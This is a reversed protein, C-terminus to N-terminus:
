GRADPAAVVAGARARLVGRRELEGAYESYMTRAAKSERIAEYQPRPSFWVDYDFEFSEALLAAVYTRVDNPDVSQGIARRIQGPLDEIASCRFVCRMSNYFVQGFTIVPVGLILAEIGVTGTITLVVQSRRALEPSSLLPDVLRVSPIRKLRQYYALPRMGVMPMHEKVYLRMSVPLSRAINEILTLQDVWFPALVSTSMEPQFHLPFYAYPEDAPLSTEFIGRARLARQRINLRVADLVKRMPSQESTDQRYIGFYHMYIVRALGIARRPHLSAQSSNILIARNVGDPTSPTDRFAAIHTDAAKLRDDPRARLEEYLRDVREYRLGAPTDAILARRPLRTPAIELYPIGFHRAVAYCAVASLNATAFSIIADPRHDSFERRFYGLFISMAALVQRYDFHTITRDADFLRWLTDLGLEREAWDLVETDAVATRASWMLDQYSSLHAYQIDSQGDRLFELYGRGAVMARFSEDPLGYDRKFSTAMAHGYYTLDLEHRFFLRTM